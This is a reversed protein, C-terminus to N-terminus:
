IYSASSKGNIWIDAQGDNELDKFSGDTRKSM